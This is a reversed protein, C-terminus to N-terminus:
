SSRRASTRMVRDGRLAVFGAGREVTVALAGRVVTDIREQLEATPSIFPSVFGFGWAM